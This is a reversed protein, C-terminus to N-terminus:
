QAAIPSEAPKPLPVGMDSQKTQKTDSPLKGPKGNGSPPPNEDDGEITPKEPMPPPRIGLLEAMHPDMQTRWVNVHEMCHALVAETVRPDNRMSPANLVAAHERLHCEPDDTPSVPIPAGKMLQENEWQILLLKTRAAQTVPKWVGEQIVSIAQEPTEIAGPIKALLQYMEMRGSTSRMMPSVSKVVVRDIQEFRSAEFTDAYPREDAGAVQVVFPTKAYRKVIKLLMNAVREDHEAVAAHLADSFEIAISHFLAAMTGSTVNSDPAGRVTANLGTISQMKREAYECVWEAGDPIEALTMAQPPNVGEAIALYSAGNAIAKLDVDLKESGFIIQRGFTSINSVAASIVEDLVQQVSLLDWSDAYGFMSGVHNSPCFPILPIEDYPLGGDPTEATAHNDKVVEGCCYVLYRGSPLAATREHFFHKVTVLDTEGSSDNMNSIGLLKEFTYEDDDGAGKLKDALHPYEAILEHRSRRERVCRWVHEDDDEITSECFVDWPGLQRVFPAGSKKKVTAPSPSGDALPLPVDVMAGGDGDWMGWTWSHGYQVGKEVVRRRKKEGFAKSYVYQVASDCSEVQARSAYDTNIAVCQFAPRDKTAMSASQRAFSRVENIRVRLHQDQDGEFGVQQTDLDTLSDPNRGHIQAWMLRWIETLGWGRCTDFFGRERKDLVAILEPGPLDAWLREGSPKADDEALPQSPDGLQAQFAALASPPTM